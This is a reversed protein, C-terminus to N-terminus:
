FAFGFDTRCVWVVMNLSTTKDQKLWISGILNQKGKLTWLAFNIM